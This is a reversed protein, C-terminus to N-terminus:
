NGMLCSNWSGVRMINIGVDIILLAEHAHDTEPVLLRDSDVEFSSILSDNELLCYTPDQAQPHRAAVDANPMRLADFLTKIRGDLDGGQLILAGPEEQRLFLIDLSCTLDLSKRVLPIYTKGGEVVPASLDVFGEPVPHSPDFEVGFPGSEVPFVQVGETPVRAAHRLKKLARHTQWLLALQPHFQDRIQRVVDPKKSSNGTAPLAGRYVLRFRMIERPCSLNQVIFRDSVLSM